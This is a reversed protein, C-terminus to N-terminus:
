SPRHSDDRLERTSARRVYEEFDREFQPWWTPEMASSEGDIDEREAFSALVVAILSILFALCSLIIAWAPALGIMAVCLVAGTFALCAWRTKDLRPSEEELAATFGAASLIFGGLTLLEIAMPARTM